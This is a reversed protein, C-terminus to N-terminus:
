AGSKDSIIVSQKVQLSIFISLFILFSWFIVVVSPEPESIASM